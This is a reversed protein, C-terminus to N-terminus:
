EKGWSVAAEKNMRLDAHDGANSEHRQYFRAWTLVIRVETIASTRRPSIMTFVPGPLPLVVAAMPVASRATPLPMFTKINCNM